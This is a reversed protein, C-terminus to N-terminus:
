TTISTRINSVSNIKQHREAKVKKGIAYMIQDVLYRNESSEKVFDPLDNKFWHIYASINPKNKKSLRDENVNGLGRIFAYARIVHQDIIPNTNDALHKGFYHLVIGSDSLPEENRFGNVIHKIKQIDGQKWLFSYLLQSLASQNSIADYNIEGTEGIIGSEILTEVQEKTISIKLRPYKNLSMKYNTLDPLNLVSILAETTQCQQISDLYQSYNFQTETKM